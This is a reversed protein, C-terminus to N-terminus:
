REDHRGFINCAADIRATLGAERMMSAMLQRARRDEESFALRTTGIRALTEIRASLRPGNICLDSM